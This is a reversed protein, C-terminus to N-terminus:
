GGFGPYWVVAIEAQLPKDYRKDLVGVYSFQTGIRGFVHLKAGDLDAHAMVAVPAGPPLAALAADISSRLSSIPFARILDGEAM